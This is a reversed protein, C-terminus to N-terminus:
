SLRCCNKAAASIRRDGDTSARALGRDCNTSGTSRIGSQQSLRPFRTYTESHVPNQNDSTAERASCKRASQGLSPPLDIHDVLTRVNTAICEVLDVRVAYPYVTVSWMQEMSGIFPDNVPDISEPLKDGILVTNLRQQRISSADPQRDVARRDIVDETQRQVVTWRDAGEQARLREVDRLGSIGPFIQRGIYAHHQRIKKEARIRFLHPPKIELIHVGRDNLPNRQSVIILITIERVLAVLHHGPEAIRPEELRYQIM